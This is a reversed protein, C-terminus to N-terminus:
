LTKRKDSPDFADSRLWLYIAAYIIVIIALLLTKPDMIAWILSLVVALSIFCDIVQIKRKKRKLHGLVQDLILNPNQDKTKM